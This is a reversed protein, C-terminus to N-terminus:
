YGEQNEWPSNPNRYPTGQNYAPPRGISKTDGMFTYELWGHAGQVSDAVSKGELVVANLRHQGEAVYVQGNPDIYAETEETGSSGGKKANNPSRADAARFRVTTTGNPYEIVHWSDGSRVVKAGEPLGGPIAEPAVNRVGPTTTSPNADVKPEVVPPTSAPPEEPASQSASASGQTQGTVRGTSGGVTNAPPLQVSTGDPFHQVAPGIKRGSPDRPIEITTPVKRGDPREQLVPLSGPSPKPAAFGGSSVICHEGFGGPGVAFMAKQDTELLYDWYATQDGNAMRGQLERLRANKDLDTAESATTSGISVGGREEYGLLVADIPLVVNNWLDSIESDRSRHAGMAVLSRVEWSSSAWRESKSERRYEDKSTQSLAAGGFREEDLKTQIQNYAAAREQQLERIKADREAEPMDAISGQLARVNAVMANPDDTPGEELGSPDVHNVPNNKVYRYLNLDDKAPDAATFVGTQPNYNRHHTSYQLEPGADPDKRYALYEGKYLQSNATSGTSSTLKGWGDFSYDDTVVQADDTLQRVNHIGDCLYFSSELDRHQSIATAYEAPLYTVDAQVTGVDDLELVLNNGDYVFRTEAVGDDQLVRLGDGNYAYTTVDGSPHEVQVLRNEGDWTNTTIDGSPEEITLQNGNDDYTYTTTGSVDVGALLRNGNDYTFTTIDGTVPDTQTLRNGAILGLHCKWATPAHRM